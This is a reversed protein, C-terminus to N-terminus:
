KKIKHVHAVKVDEDVYTFKQLRSYIQNIEETTLLVDSNKMDEKIIKRLMNRKIVKVNDSTVNVKKLTCRESFIIYSKYLNDNKLGVAAKLANIHGKNQLIPNFFKNKQKNPLTQTWTKQNEDGFILGSYNKSEFVYIGTESIMVLDIETTSGDKKPIYLNTM